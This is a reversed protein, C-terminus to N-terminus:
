VHARGIQRLRNAGFTPALLLDSGAELYARQLDQLACPHDLVWTETCAGPPMGQQLLNTGTAGDLLLPRRPPPTKM